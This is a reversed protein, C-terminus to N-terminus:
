PIRFKSEKLLQGILNERSILSRFGFLWKRLRLSCVAIGYPLCVLYCQFINCSKIQIKPSRKMRRIQLPRRRSWSGPFSNVGKYFELVKNVSSVLGIGLIGPGVKIFVVLM